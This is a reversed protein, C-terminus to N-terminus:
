KTSECWEVVAVELPLEPKSATRLETYVRSFLKVLLLIDDKPLLSILEKKIEENEVGHQVLLITHLLNLVDTVLYRFDSGNKSLNKITTLVKATDKDVLLNLFMESNIASKGLLHSLKELELAEEAMAQEFLKTADRFSGDAHLSITELVSDTVTVKEGKAVRKLSSVIEDVTAMTFNFRTCRSVITAPLKDPETTAFIFVSHAPPEELTKLFANFAENTMMHVEDIIYVKYKASLPSLKIKDRLERVEEIGRNSAADIEIVDLHRGDTISTCSECLNCPDIEKLEQNKIRSEHGGAPSAPNKKECNLIKAVIRATSTKGTGKPGAFLFASPIYASTLVQGLRDRISVNDLESLSQPRYKRYLTMILLDLIRLEFNM